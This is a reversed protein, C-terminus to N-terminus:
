HTLEAAAEEISQIMEWVALRGTAQDVEGFDEDDTLQYDIAMVQGARKLLPLLQRHIETLQPLLEASMATALHINDASGNCQKAAAATTTQTNM